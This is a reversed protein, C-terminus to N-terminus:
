AGPGRRDSATAPEAQARDAVQLMLCERVGFLRHMRRDTDPFENEADTLPALRAQDVEYSRGDYRITAAGSALVNKVWDSDSGYPLAVAFGGNRARVVHVPTEYPKGSVRGVHRVIAAYAGPSGAAKLPMQKTARSVKRVADIVTRSRLRMGIVFTAGLAVLIGVIVSAVPLLVRRM